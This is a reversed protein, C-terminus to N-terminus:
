SINFRKLHKFDDVTINEFVNMDRVTIRLYDLNQLNEFCNREFGTVNRIELGQLSKFNQGLRVCKDGKLILFKINEM